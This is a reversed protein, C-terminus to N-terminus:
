REGRGFFFFFLFLVLICHCIVNLSPLFLTIDILLFFDNCKGQPLKFDSCGSTMKPMKMRSLWAVSCHDCFVIVDWPSLPAGVLTGWNGVDAVGTCVNGGHEASVWSGPFLGSGTPILESSGDVLADPPLLWLSPLM